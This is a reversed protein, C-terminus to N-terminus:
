FAPDALSPLSFGIAEPPPQHERKMLRREGMNVVIGEGSRLTELLEREAESWAGFIMEERLEEIINLIGDDHDEPGAYISVAEQLLEETLIPFNSNGNESLWESITNQKRDLEEAIEQQSLGLRSLILARVKLVDRHRETIDSVWGSVTRPRVSLRKAIEKQSFHPNSKM